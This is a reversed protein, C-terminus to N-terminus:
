EIRFGLTDSIGHVRDDIREFVDVEFRRGLSNGALDELIMAARLVYAGARWPDRPTFRWRTDGSEVLATGAVPTGGSDRVEVVSELLARDLPEPFTAVLPELSGPRPLDLRWDSTRPPTHDPPGVRFPKRAERALPNGRADPWGRDVALTYRSGERLPSGVEQNPLLERKVRGPDFLLTLRRLDRDWLEQEIELFPMDVAEGREDLLHVRRYAEGRTMPASFHLYFKLLNEPLTEPSPDIRLVETLPAPPAKAVELFSTASPGGPETYVARYRLGPQLEFRPIFLLAEGERRLTGLLAPTGAPGEVFVELTAGPAAPRISVVGDGGLAIRREPAGPPTASAALALAVALGIM